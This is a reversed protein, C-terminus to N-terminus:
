KKGLSALFDLIQDVALTARCRIEYGGGREWSSGVMVVMVLSLAPVQFGFFLVLLAPVAEFGFGVVDSANVGLRAGSRIEGYPPDQM